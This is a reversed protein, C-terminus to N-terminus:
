ATQLLPKPMPNPHALHQYVERAIFRKLCRLIDKKSLGEATRRAVYEKTRNDYRMRVLHISGYRQQSPQDTAQRRTRH